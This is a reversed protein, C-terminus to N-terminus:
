NQEEEPVKDMAVLEDEEEHETLPRGCEECNEPRGDAVWMLFGSVNEYAQDITFVEGDVMVMVTQEPDDAEQVYSIREMNVTVNGDETEFELFEM